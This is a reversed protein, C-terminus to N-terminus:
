KLQELTQNIQLNLARRLILGDYAVFACLLSDKWNKGRLFNLSIENVYRAVCVKVSEVRDFMMDLEDTHENM